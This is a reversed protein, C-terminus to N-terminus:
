CPASRFAVGPIASIALALAAPTIKNAALYLPPVIGAEELAAAQLESCIWSDPERWDRGTVFGAIAPWDYPKGLQSRLFALWKGNSRTSVPVDFVVRVALAAYGLPRVAVGSPITLGGDVVTRQYSGLLGEPLIAEVHSVVGASFWAIMSSTIKAERVFQLTITPSPM